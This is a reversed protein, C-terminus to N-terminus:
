KFTIVGLQRVIDSLKGCDYLIRALIKVDALEVRYKLEWCSDCMQTALMTTQKNCYKCNTTEPYM